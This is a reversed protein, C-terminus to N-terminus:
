GIEKEKFKEDIMARVNQAIALLEKGALAATVSLPPEASRPGIFESVLHVKSGFKQQYTISARAATRSVSIKVARHPLPQSGLILTLADLFTAGRTFPCRNADAPKTEAIDRARVGVAAITDSALAGIVLLAVSEATTRVGSGPGWGDGIDLLEARVLNRQREYVTAPPMGLIRALSPVYAKLAVAM